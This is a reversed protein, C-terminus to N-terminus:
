FFKLFTQPEYKPGLADGLISKQSEKKHCPGNLPVTGRFIVHTFLSILRCSITEEQESPCKKKLKFPRREKFLMFM